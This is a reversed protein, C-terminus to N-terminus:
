KCYTLSFIVCVAELKKKLVLIQEGIPDSLQMFQLFNFYDESKDFVIRFTKGSITVSTLITELIYLQCYFSAFNSNTGILCPPPTNHKITQYPYVCNRIMHGNEYFILRTNEMTRYLELKTIHSLSWDSIEGQSNVNGNPFSPSAFLKCSQICCYDDRSEQKVEQFSSTQKHQLPGSSYSSTSSAKYVYSQSQFSM